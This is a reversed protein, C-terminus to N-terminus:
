FVYTNEILLRHKQSNNALIPQESMLTDAVRINTFGRFASDGVIWYNGPLGEAYNQLTNSNRYVRANHCRGYSATIFRIRKEYDCLM